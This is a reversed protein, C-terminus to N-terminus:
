AAGSVSGVADIVLTLTARLGSPAYDLAVDGSLSHKLSQEILQTGFGRRQPPEVPPGGSEIWELVLRDEADISWAIAVRGNESSLAGYKVANTALEHLVLGLMQAQKSSLTVKPGQTRVRRGDIATYPGVQGEILDGLAAGRWSTDTLIDHAVAISALRGLFTERFQELTSSHRLTHTALAQVTALSNKVRHNLEHILL